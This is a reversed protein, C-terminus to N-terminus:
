RATRLARLEEDPINLPDPNKLLAEEFPNDGQKATLPLRRIRNMRMYNVVRSRLEVPRGPFWDPWEAKQLFQQSVLLSIALLVLSDLLFYPAVVTSVVIVLAAYKTLLRKSSSDM